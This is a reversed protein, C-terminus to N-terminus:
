ANAYRGARALLWSFVKGRPVFGPWAMVIRFCLYDVATFPKTKM